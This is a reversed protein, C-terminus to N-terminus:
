ATKKAAQPAPEVGNKIDEKAQEYVDKADSKATEYTDKIDSKATQYDSKITEMAQKYVDKADDDTAAEYANKAAAKADEYVQKADAKATEYDSKLADVANHYATKADDLLAKDADSADKKSIYEEAGEGDDDPCFCDLPGNGNLCEPTVGEACQYTCLKSAPPLKTSSAYMDRVKAATVYGEACTCAADGDEWVAWNGNGKKDGGCLDYGDEADVPIACVLTGDDNADYCQGTCGPNEQYCKKYDMKTFTFADPDVVDHKDSGSLMKADSSKAAAGACFLVVGFAAARITRMMM